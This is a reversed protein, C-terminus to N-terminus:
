WEPADVNVETKKIPTQIAGRNTENTQIQKAYRRETDHGFTAQTEPNNM